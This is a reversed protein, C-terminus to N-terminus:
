GQCSKGTFYITGDATTKINAPESSFVCLTAPINHCTPINGPVVTIIGSGDDIIQDPPMDAGIIVTSTGDPNLKKIFNGEQFIVEGNPLIDLSQSTADNLEVMIGKEIKRIGTAKNSIFYIVGNADIVFDKVSPLVAQLANTNNPSISSDNLSGAVVVALRNDDMKFIQKGDSVKINLM